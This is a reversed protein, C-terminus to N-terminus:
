NALVRLVEDVPIEGRRARAIGDDMLTVMGEDRAARALHHTPKGATIMDRVTDTVVLMEYVAVRGDFGKDLCHPCGDGVFFPGTPPPEYGLFRFQREQSPTLAQERRCRPCLRQCLRQSLVAKVASALQFREVGMQIIRNFVGAAGDAHVTTLILHGTMAARLAIEATEDDRIEGVLIVDPDQRLISRLGVAFTMGAATDIPTQSFQPFDFEIPDELTVINARDGRTEAIQQLAAYMTTTKGSGTPGTVVLLGQNSNLLGCLSEETEADMGLRDISYAGYDASALRLVIKEGHNTPLVSVRVRHRGEHLDIQGDQPTATKYITLSAMVKIRSAAKRYTEIPMQGLEYLIGHVRVSVTTAATSPSLHIDSSGLSLGISLLDDLLQVVDVQRQTWHWELRTRFAPIRSIPTGPEIEIPPM